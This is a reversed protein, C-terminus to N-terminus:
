FSGEQVTKSIAVIRGVLDLHPRWAYVQPKFSGDVQVLRDSQHNGDDDLYAGEVLEEGYIVIATQIAIERVSKEAKVFPKPEDGRDDDADRLVDGFPDPGLGDAASALEEPSMEQLKENSARGRAIEADMAERIEDETPWHSYVTPASRGSVRVVENKAPMTFTGGPVYRPNLALALSVAADFVQSATTGGNRLHRSGKEIVDRRIAEREEDSTTLFEEEMSAIEAATPWYRHVSDGCLHTLKTVAYTKPLKGDAVVFARVAAHVSARVSARTRRSKPTFDAAPMEFVEKLSEHTIKEAKTNDVFNRFAAMGEAMGRITQSDNDRLNFGLRKCAVKVTNVQIDLASAVRHETLKAEAALELLPLQIDPAKSRGTAFMADKARRYAEAAKSFRIFAPTQEVVASPRLMLAANM